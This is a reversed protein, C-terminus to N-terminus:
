SSRCFRLYTRVALRYARTTRMKYLIKEPVGIRGRYEAVDAQLAEAAQRWHESQALWYNKARDVAGYDHHLGRVQEHAELGFALIRRGMTALWPDRTADALYARFAPYDGEPQPAMLLGALRQQQVPPLESLNPDTILADVMLLFAPHQARAEVLPVLNRLRAYSLELFTGFPDGRTVGRSQQRLFTLKEPVMGFRCGHRLFRTWLEYDPARVMAPDDLGIRMHAARRVMSSSRALPNHHCWTDLREVAHPKNLLEEVADAEPHRNGEADVLSVYTGIVDLGPNAAAFDLQRQAKEPAIWDDADLNVLWEGRAAEVARNYSAAGGINRDNIFLRIRPDNYSRIVEVSADSSADDVVVIEFDQLTQRLISDLTIRIYEQYNYSLVIYSFRPMATM